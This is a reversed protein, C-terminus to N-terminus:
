KCKEFYVTALWTNGTQTFFDTNAGYAKRYIMKGTIPNKHSADRFSATINEVKQAVELLEGESYIGDCGTRIESLLKLMYTPQRNKRSIALKFKKEM